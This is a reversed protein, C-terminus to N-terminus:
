CHIPGIATPALIIYRYSGRTYPEASSNTSCDQRRFDLISLGIMITAIKSLSADAKTM